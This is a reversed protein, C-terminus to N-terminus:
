GVGIDIYCRCRLGTEPRPLTERRILVLQARIVRPRHRREQERGTRMYARVSGPLIVSRCAKMANRRGHGTPPRLIRGREIM